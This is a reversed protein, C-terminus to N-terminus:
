CSAAQETTTIRTEEVDQYASQVTWPGFKKGHQTKYGANNLQNATDLFSTGLGGIEEVYGRYLSKRDQLRIRRNETMQELVNHM